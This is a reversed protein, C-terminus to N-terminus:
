LALASSLKSLSQDCSPVHPPMLAKTASRVKKTLGRLSRCRNHLKLAERLDIVDPDQEGLEDAMEQFDTFLRDREQEDKWTRETLLTKLREYQEPTVREAYERKKNALSRVGTGHGRYLWRTVLNIFAPRKKGLLEPAADTGRKCLFQYAEDLPSDKGAGRTHRFNIKVGARLDALQEKSLLDLVTDSVLRRTAESYQPM